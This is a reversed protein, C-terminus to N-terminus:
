SAQAKELDGCILFFSFFFLTAQSSENPTRGREAMFIGNMSLVASAVQAEGLRGPTSRLLAGNESTRWACARRM